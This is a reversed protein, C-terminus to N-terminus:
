RAPRRAYLVFSTGADPNDAFERVPAYQQAFRPDAWLARAYFHISSLAGTPEHVVHALLVYQPKRGLVYTVDFKDFPGGPLHALHTDMLGFMDLVRVNAYYPIIGAEGLAVLDASPVNAQMWRAVAYYNPDVLSTPAMPTGVGPVEHNITLQGGLVASLCAITIVTGRLLSGWQRPPCLTMCGDQFLLALWPLTPVLFRYGPMWDGGEYVAIGVQAAFLLLVLRYHPSTRRALLPIMAVLCLGGLGLVLLGSLVYWAGALATLGHSTVEGVKAYYTNPLLNGYYRLRWLLFSGYPLAFLVCALADSGLGALARRRLRGGTRYLLVLGFLLLPEPRTLAALVFCGGWWPAREARLLCYGALVLLFTVLPTELGSVSWAAFAGSAALAWPAAATIPGMASNSASRYRRGMQWLLLITGVSLIVGLGKAVLLMGFPFRDAGLLAPLAMLVTWLFNTYGEVHEGLNFLLGHGLALNRAYRFSIFADDITFGLYLYEQILLLAFSGAALMAQWPLVVTRRAGRMVVLVAM